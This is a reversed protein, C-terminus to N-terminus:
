HNTPEDFHPLILRRVYDSTTQYDQGKDREVTFLTRMETVHPDLSNKIDELVPCPKDAKDQHLLYKEAAPTQERNLGYIYELWFLMTMNRQSADDPVYEGDVAALESLTRLLRYANLLRKLQRPNALRYSTTLKTFLELEEPTDKGIDELLKVIKKQSELSSSAETDVSKPPVDVHVGDENIEVEPHPETEDAVHGGKDGITNSKTDDQHPRDTANIPLGDEINFLESVFKHLHDESPHSLRIPLQILKGLYDRAIRHLQRDQFFIKDLKEYHEAYHAAIARLAIRHDLAIVVIVGEMNMVLKVAELTEMIGKPGCRDLDDVFIVLKQNEKNGLQLDLLNGIQQKMVPILGLHQDYRPLKLYTTLEMLLPHEVILKLHKYMFHIFLFIAGVATTGMLGQVYINSKVLSTWKTASVGIIAIILLFLVKVLSTRNEKWAFRWILWWRRPGKMTKTLGKVVEQALGSRIDDCQEYEWANFWACKFPAKRKLLMNKIKLLLGEKPILQGKIQHMVSTKGFGWEGLLAVTFPTAQEKSKFMAVLTDVLHGRGLSDKLAPEDSTGVFRHAMRPVLLARWAGADDDPFNFAVIKDILAQRLLNLDYGQEILVDQVKPVPETDLFMAMLIHRAGVHSRNSVQKALRRAGNLVIQADSGIGKPSPIQGHKRTATTINYRDALGLLKMPSASQAKSQETLYESLFKCTDQRMDKRVTLYGSLLLVSDLPVKARDAYDAAYKLGGVTRESIDIGLGPLSMIKSARNKNSSTQKLSESNNKQEPSESAPHEPEAM